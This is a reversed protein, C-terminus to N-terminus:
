LSCLHGCRVDDRVLAHALDLHHDRLNLFRGVRDLVRLLVLQGVTEFVNLREARELVLIPEPLQHLDDYDNEYDGPM